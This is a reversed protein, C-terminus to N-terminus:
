RTRCMCPLDMQSASYAPFPRNRHRRDDKM